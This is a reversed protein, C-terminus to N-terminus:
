SGSGVGLESFLDGMRDAGARQVEELVTTYVDATTARRTHRLMRQVVALDVGQRLMLTAMTHRLDHVRVPPVGARECVQEWARNVNRPEIATGISTTFMLDPDAWLPAAMRAAVQATRHERWLQVVPAPVPVTAASADTKPDVEVLRGRRQGSPSREDTRRRKLSKAVMVTGADLDTRSWRLALAEGRRLGTALYTLWLVRLPDGDIAAVIAAVQQVNLPRGKGGPKVKPPEVLAVVNRRVGPVEDRLADNLAKRVIAHCYAVTRASLPKGRASTKTLLDTQWARVRAPTLKDWRVDALSPAIHLRWNDAYSDLTDPSLTGAAVRAPLTAGLWETEVWAGVTGPARSSVPLGDEIDRLVARRKALAERETKGYLVKRRGTDPLVVATVWLGDSARRYVSGEGNARRRSM